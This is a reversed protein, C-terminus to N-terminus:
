GFHGKGHPTEHAAILTPCSRGRSLLDLFESLQVGAVGLIEHLREEALCRHLPVGVARSARILHAVGKEVFLVEFGGRRLARVCEDGSLAPLSIM